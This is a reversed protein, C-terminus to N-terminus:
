NARLVMWTIVEDAGPDANFTVNIADAVAHAFEFQQAVKTAQVAIVIDTTLAGTVTIAEEAAGGATTSQGAFVISHSESDDTSNPRIVMGSVNAATAPDASLTITVTGDASVRAAAITIDNAGDNEMSVIVLDTTLSGAVAVTETADGGASVSNFAGIVQWPVDGISPNNIIGAYDLSHATPAASLVTTMVSHDSNTVTVLSDTDDTTSYSVFLLNGNNINNNTVTNTASGTTAAISGAVMIQWSKVTLDIPAITGNLIDTSSVTNAVHTLAGANTLAHGTTITQPDALGDSGGIWIKTDALPLSTIGAGGTSLLSGSEDPLLLRNVASPDSASLETHFADSTPGELFITNVWGARWSKTDVGLTGKKDEFGPNFEQELASAFGAFALMLALMITLAIKGYPKKKGM